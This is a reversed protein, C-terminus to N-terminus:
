HRGIREIRMSIRPVFFHKEITIRAPTIEFAIANMEWGRSFLFQPISNRPMRSTEFPSWSPFLSSGKIARSGAHIALLHPTSFLQLSFDRLTRGVRSIAFRMTTLKKNFKIELYVITTRGGRLKSFTKKIKRKIM